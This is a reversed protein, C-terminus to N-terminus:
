PTPPTASWASVNVVKAKVVKSAKKLAAKAEKEKSLKRQFVLLSGYQKLYSKLVKSAGDTKVLKLARKDKIKLLKFFKKLTGIDALSLNQERLEVDLKAGVAGVLTDGFSKAVSGGIDGNIAYKAFPIVGKSSKKVVKEVESEKTLAIVAVFVLVLVAFITTVLLNPVLLFAIVLVFGIKTFLGKGGFFASILVLFRSSYGANSALPNNKM